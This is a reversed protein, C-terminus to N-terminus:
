EMNLYTGQETWKSNQDQQNCWCAAWWSLVAGLGNLPIDNPSYIFATKLFGGLLDISSQILSSGCSSWRFLLHLFWVTLVNSSNLFVQWPFLISLILVSFGHSAWQFRSYLYGVPVDNSHIFLLRGSSWQFFPYFFAVSFVSSSHTFFDWLFIM